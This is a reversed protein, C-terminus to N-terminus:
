SEGLVAEAVTITHLVASLELEQAEPDVTAPAGIRQRTRDAPIDRHWM